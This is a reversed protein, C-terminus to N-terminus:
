LANKNILRTRTSQMVLKQGQNTMEYKETRNFEIDLNDYGLLSLIENAQTRVKQWDNNTSLTREDWFEPDKDGSREDLFEDLQNLKEFAKGSILDNDLYQQFSLTFYSYFDEAMEDTVVGAGIIERQRDASSSLIILTKILEGFKWCVQNDENSLDSIGYDYTPDFNM